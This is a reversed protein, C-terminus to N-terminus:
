LGYEEQYKLFLLKKETTLRNYNNPLKNSSIYLDEINHSIHHTRILENDTCDLLGKFNNPLYRLTKLKNNSCRIEDGVKIPMYELSELINFSCNFTGTIM